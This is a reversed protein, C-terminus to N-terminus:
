SIDPFAFKVRYWVLKCTVKLYAMSEKLIRFTVKGLMFTLFNKKFTNIEMEVM